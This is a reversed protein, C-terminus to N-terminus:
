AMRPRNRFLVAWLLGLVCTLVLFFVLISFRGALAVVSGLWLAYLVATLAACLLRAERRTARFILALPMPLVGGCVAIRWVLPDRTIAGTLLAAAFAALALGTWRGAQAQGSPLAIPGDPLLLVLFSFLEAAIFVLMFLLAYAFVLPMVWPAWAPNTKALLDVGRVVAFGGLLLLARLVPPRRDLWMAYGLVGAYRPNRSRMVEALGDLAWGNRPDLRLAERFSEMAQGRRGRRLHVWGQNTRSHSHEPRQAVAGAIAAAADDPRDLQLLATARLNLCAVDGPDIELGREAAALADSWRGRGQHAEALLAFHYASSPEIRIAELIAAAVQDWRAARCHVYAEVAHPYAEDPALSVAVRAAELAEGERGPVRSLLSALLGHAVANHPDEALALRYEREALELRGQEALLEGRDLRASVPDLM